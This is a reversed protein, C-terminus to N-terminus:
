KVTKTPTLKLIEDEEVWIPGLGADQSNDYAINLAETVTVETKGRPIVFRVMVTMEDEEMTDGTMM